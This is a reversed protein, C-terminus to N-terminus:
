EKYGAKKGQIKKSLLTGFPHMAEICLGSFHTPFDELYFAILNMGLECENWIRFKM